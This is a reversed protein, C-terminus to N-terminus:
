FKNVMIRMLFKFFLIGAAYRREAQRRYKRLSKEVAKVAPSQEDQDEKKLEDLRKELEVMQARLIMMRELREDARQPPDTTATSIVSEEEMFDGHPSTTADQAASPEQQHQQQTEDREVGHLTKTDDEKEQTEQDGEPQMESKSQEQVARDAEERQAAEEAEKKEKEEEEQEAQERKKEEEKRKEEEEEKRREEKRKQEAEEEEKRKKAEEKKKEEEKREKEEREKEDERRKQEAEEEKRKEEAAKRKRDAEEEKKKEEEKRKQEAEEKRKEEAAAEIQKQKRLADDQEEKKKREAREEAKKRETEKRAEEAQRELALAAEKRAREEEEAKRAKEEEEKRVREEEEAKRAKEEEEKRVREEEEKRVREEEEAKLKAEEEAQKKTAEEKATDTQAQAAAAATSTGSTWPNIITNFDADGTQRSTTKSLDDNDNNNNQVHENINPLKRDHSPLPTSSYIDECDGVDTYPPPASQRRPKTPISTVQPLSFSELTSYDIDFTDNAGSSSMTMAVPPVPRILPSLPPILVAHGGAPSDKSPPTPPRDQDLVETRQIKEWGDSTTGGEEASDPIDPLHEPPPGPHLVDEVVDRHIDWRAASDSPTPPMPIYPKLKSTAPDPVPQEIDVLAEEMDPIEDHNLSPSSVASSQNGEDLDSVSYTHNLRPMTSLRYHTTGLADNVETRPSRRTRLISARDTDTDSYDGPYYGPVRRKLLESAASSSPPVVAIPTDQSSIVSPTIFSHEERNRSPERSPLFRVTRPPPFFAVTPIKDYITYLDRRFHRWVRKLGIEDWIGPAVDALVMGFATWILVLVLRELSETVLFDVFLRVGYAIYPDSSRPMKKLFHLTIVGEWLGILSGTLKFDQSVADVLTRLGLGFAIAYISDM